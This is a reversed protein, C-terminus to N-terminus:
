RIQIWNGGTHFELPRFRTKYNMKRCNKIWYGLYVAPLQLEQAKEIQWLISYSGLSRQEDFPDFFTYVASLGNTMFDVVAVCKLKEDHWFAFYRTVNWESSLFAQYQEKSPPYMDGDHHRACIYDSYLRYYTDDFISEPETVRLDANRRMIRRQSRNAAFDNVPIRVPVCASCSSCHPRYLHEGSRRFGISSLESYLTQDIELKPDVFITTATQDELYSCPHPHTTFVKLDGPSTM